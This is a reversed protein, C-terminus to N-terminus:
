TRDVPPRTARSGRTKFCKLPFATTTTMPIHSGELPLFFHRTTLNAATMVRFHKAASPLEMLKKSFIWVSCLVVVTRSIGVTSFPHLVFRYKESLVRRYPKLVNPATVIEATSLDLNSFRGLPTNDQIKVTLKNRHFPSAQITYVRLGSFGFNWWNWKKKKFMNAQEFGARTPQVAMKELWLQRKPHKCGGNYFRHSITVLVDTLRVYDAAVAINKPTRLTALADGVCM